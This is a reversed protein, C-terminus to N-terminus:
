KAEGIRRKDEILEIIMINSPHVPRLAKSGDKKYLEIREVFVKQDRVNVREVRGEKGKAQGRMLRVKDGKRVRISRMNHKKRLEKSLMSHMFRGQIHKPAQYRYKRQKRPQSSAKWARSFKKKM